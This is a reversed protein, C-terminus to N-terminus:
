KHLIIYSIIDTSKIGFIDDYEHNCIDNALKDISTICRDRYEFSSENEYEFQINIHILTKDEPNDAYSRINALKVNYKSKVLDFLRGRIHMKIQKVRDESIDHEFVLILERM